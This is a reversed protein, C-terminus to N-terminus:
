HTAGMSNNKPVNDAAILEKEKKTEPIESVNTEGKVLIKSLFYQDGVQSFVLESSSPEENVSTGITDFIANQKGDVSTLELVYGPDMQNDLPKFIYEGAPYTKDKIVFSHSINFKLATGTSMQAYSATVSGVVLISFVVLIKTFYKVM